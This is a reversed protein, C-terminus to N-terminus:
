VGLYKKVLLYTKLMELSSHVVRWRRADHSDDNNSNDDTKRREDAREDSLKDGHLKQTASSKFDPLKLRLFSSNKIYAKLPNKLHMTTTQRLKIYFPTSPKWLM